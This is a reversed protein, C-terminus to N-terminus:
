KFQSLLSALILLMEWLLMFFVFFSFCLCFNETSRSTYFRKPGPTFELGQVAHQEHCQEGVSLDIIKIQIEYLQCPDPSQVGNIKWFLDASTANAHSKLKDFEVFLRPLSTNVSPVPQELDKLHEYLEKVTKVLREANVRLHLSKMLFAELDRRCSCFDELLSEMLFLPSYKLAPRPWLDKLHQRDVLTMDCPEVYPELYYPSRHFVLLKVQMEQLRHDSLSTDFMMLTHERVDSPSSSKIESLTM